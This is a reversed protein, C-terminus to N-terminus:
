SLRMYYRNYALSYIHELDALTLQVPEGTDATFFLLRLDARAGNFIVTLSIANADSSRRFHPLAPHRDEYHAAILHGLTGHDPDPDISTVGLRKMYLITMMDGTFHSRVFLRRIYTMGRKDTYIFSIYNADDSAFFFPRGPEDQNFITALAAANGRIDPRFDHIFYTAMTTHYLAAM